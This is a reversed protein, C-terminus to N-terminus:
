PREGTRIPPRKMLLPPCPFLIQKRKQAPPICCRMFTAWISRGPLLAEAYYGSERGLASLLTDAGLAAGESNWHSDTRYYLLRNEAGIASFLDAYSVGAASLLQELRVANANEHGNEYASPMYEPYLSNKNPAVTFLFDGGCSNVYEQMLALNRAASLLKGNELSSGTFDELTETYYLFDSKGQLVSDDPSTSFLRTNIGSWLTIFERRLYFRDSVYDATDSLVSENLSGDRKVLKPKSALIENASAKSPGFVLMGVAPILCMLLFAALFIRNFVKRKM